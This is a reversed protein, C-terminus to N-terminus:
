LKTAREVLRAAYLREVLVDDVVLIFPEAAVGHPPAPPADLAQPHITRTM